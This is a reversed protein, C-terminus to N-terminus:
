YFLYNNGEFEIFKILDQQMISITKTNINPHFLLRKQKLREDILITVVHNKDNIIGFPSVSGKSLKLIRKLEEESGFSLHGNLKQSLNKLDIKTQDEAILLYYGKKNKLFLNKCGVGSINEKIKQANKVTFVPEHNIVKYEVNLKKLTKFVEDM